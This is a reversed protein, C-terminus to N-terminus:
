PLRRVHADKACRFEPWEKEWDHPTRSRALIMFALGFVGAVLLAFVVAYLDFVIGGSM